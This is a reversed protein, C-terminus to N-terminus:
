PVLSCRRMRYDRRDARGGVHGGGCAPAPAGVAHVKGFRLLGWPLVPATQQCSRRGETLVDAVGVAGARAPHQDQGGSVSTFVKIQVSWRADLPLVLSEEVVSTRWAPFERCAALSGVRHHLGPADRPRGAGTQPGATLDAHREDPPGGTRPRLAAEADFFAATAGVTFNYGALLRAEGAGGTDGAQAPEAGNYAGPVFLTAEGSFVWEGSSWLKARLGLERITSARISM